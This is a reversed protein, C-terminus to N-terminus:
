WLRINDHIAAVVRMRHMASKIIDYVIGLRVRKCFRRDTVCGPILSMRRFHGGLPSFLCLARCHKRRGWVLGAM